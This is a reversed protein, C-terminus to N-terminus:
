LHKYLACGQSISITEGELFCISYKSSFSYLPSGWHSLPLSDVQQHLLCPETGSDPLDRPSPFPLQSWYEQRLFEMSLPVQPAITWPTAFLSVHTLLQVVVLIINEGPDINPCIKQCVRIFSCSKRLEFNRLWLACCKTYLMRRARHALQGKPIQHVITVAMFNFSM